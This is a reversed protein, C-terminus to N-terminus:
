KVRKGEFKKLLKDIRYEKFVEMAEQNTEKIKRERKKSSKSM